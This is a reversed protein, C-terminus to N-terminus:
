ENNLNVSFLTYKASTIRPFISFKIVVYDVNLNSLISSFYSHIFLDIDDIKIEVWIKTM